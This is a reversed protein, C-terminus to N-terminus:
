RAVRAPAAGTVATNGLFVAAASGPAVLGSRHLTKIAILAENGLHAPAAPVEPVPAPSVALAAINAGPLRALLTKLALDM